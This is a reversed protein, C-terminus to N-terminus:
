MDNNEEKSLLKIVFPIKQSVLHVEYKYVELRESIGKNIDESRYLYIEYNNYPSKSYFDQDINNIDDPDDVPGNDQYFYLKHHSESKEVFKTLYKYDDIIDELADHFNKYPGTVKDPNTVLDNTIHKKHLFYCYGRM